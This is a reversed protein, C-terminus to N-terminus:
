REKAHDTKFTMIRWSERKYFDSNKRSKEKEIRFAQLVAERFSIFMWNICFHFTFSSNRQYSVDNWPKIFITDVISFLKMDSVFTYFGTIAHDFTNAKIIDTIVKRHFYWKLKWLNHFKKYEEM